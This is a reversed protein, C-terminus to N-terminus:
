LKRQVLFTTAQFKGYISYQISSVLLPSLTTYDTYTSDRTHPTSALSKYRSVLFIRCCKPEVFEEKLLRFNEQFRQRQLQIHNIKGQIKLLIEKEKLLEEAALQREKLGLESWKKWDRFGHRDFQHAAAGGEKVLLTAIQLTLHISKNVLQKM